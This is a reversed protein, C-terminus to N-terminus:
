HHYIGDDLPPGEATVGTISSPPEFIARGFIADFEAKTVSLYQLILELLERYTDCQWEIHPCIRSLVRNKFDDLNNPVELLNGTNLAKSMFKYNLMSLVM